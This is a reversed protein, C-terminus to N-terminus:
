DCTTKLIYRWKKRAWAGAYDVGIRERREIRRVLTSGKCSPVSEVWIRESKILDEGYFSKDLKLWKGVKGPGSLGEVGRILIAQSDDEKGTIINMLWYMGYIFYVYIHGGVGYMVANRKTKGFRAHSALDEEGGYIEVETIMKKEVRGDEFKRVLIKGLLEPAVEKADRIFFERKLKM